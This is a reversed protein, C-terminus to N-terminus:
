LCHWRAQKNLQTTRIIQSSVMVECLSSVTLSVVLCLYVPLLLRKAEAILEGSRQIVVVRSSKSLVATPM